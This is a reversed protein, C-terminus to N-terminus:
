EVPRIIVVLSGAYVAGGQHEEPLVVPSVLDLSTYTGASTVRPGIHTTKYGDVRLEAQWNDRNVRIAIDGEREVLADGPLEFHAKLFSGDVQPDFFDKIRIIMEGAATEEVSWHRYGSRSGNLRVDAECISHQFESAFIEGNISRRGCDGGPMEFCGPHQSELGATWATSHRFGYLLQAPDGDMREGMLLENGVALYVAGLDWDRNHTLHLRTSLVASQVPGFGTEARAAILGLESRMCALSHSQVPSDEGFGAWNEKSAPGAAPGPADNSLYVMAPNGEMSHLGQNALLSMPQFARGLVLLSDERWSSNGCCDGFPALLSGDPLTLFHSAEAVERLQVDGYLRSFATEFSEGFCQQRTYVAPLSEMMFVQLYTFSEIYVGDHFSGEAVRRFSNRLSAALEDEKCNNALLHAAYGNGLIIAGHNNSRRIWHGAREHFLENRLYAEGLRHYSPLVEEFTPGSIGGDAIRALLLTTYPLYGNAWNGKDWTSFDPNDALSETTERADFTRWNQWDALQLAMSKAIEPVRRNIIDCEERRETPPAECLRQAADFTIATHYLMKALREWSLVRRPAPGPLYTSADSFAQHRGESDKAQPNFLSVSETTPRIHLTTNELSSESSLRTCQQNLCLQSDTGLIAQFSALSQEPTRRPASLVVGNSGDRSLVIGDSVSVTFSDGSSLELVLLQQDPSEPINFEVYIFGNGSHTIEDYTAMQLGPNPMVLHRLSTYHGHFGRLDGADYDDITQLVSNVIREPLNPTPPSAADAAGLNAFYLLLFLSFNRSM